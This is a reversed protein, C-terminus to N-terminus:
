IVGDSRFAYRAFRHGGRRDLKWDLEGAGCQGACAIVPRLPFHPQM